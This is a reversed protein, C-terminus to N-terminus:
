EYVVGNHRYRAKPSKLIHTVLDAREEAEDAERKAKALKVADNKADIESLSIGKKAADSRIVRALVREDFEDSNQVYFMVYPLRNSSFDVLRFHPDNADRESPPIWQVEINPDYDKILEVIQHVKTNIWHGDETPTAVNIALQQLGAGQDFM